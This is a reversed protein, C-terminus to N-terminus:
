CNDKFIQLFLCANKLHSEPLIDFYIARNLDKYLLFFLYSLFKAESVIKELYLYPM